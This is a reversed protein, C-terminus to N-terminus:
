RQRTAPGLQDLQLRRADTAILAPATARIRQHPAAQSRLSDHFRILILIINPHLFFGLTTAYCSCTMAVYAHACDHPPTMPYSTVGYGIVRLLRLVFSGRGSSLLCKTPMQRSVNYVTTNRCTSPLQDCGLFCPVSEKPCASVDNKFRASWCIIRQPM